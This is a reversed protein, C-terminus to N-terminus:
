YLLNKKLVLCDKLEKLKVMTAFFSIKSLGLEQQIDPDTIRKRYKSRETNAQHSHNMSICEGM